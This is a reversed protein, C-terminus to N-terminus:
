KIPAASHVQMDTGEKPACRIQDLIWGPRIFLNSPFLIWCRKGLKGIGYGQECKYEVSNLESPPPLCEGQLKECKFEQTWLGDKTCLIPLQSIPPLSCKMM